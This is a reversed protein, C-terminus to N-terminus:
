WEQCGLLPLLLIWPCWVMTREYRIHNFKHQKHSERSLLLRDPIQILSKFSFTHNVLLLTERDESVKHSQPRWKLTSGSIWMCLDASWQEMEFRTPLIVSIAYFPVGWYILVMISYFRFAKSSFHLTLYIALIALYFYM